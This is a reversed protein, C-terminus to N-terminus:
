DYENLWNVYQPVGDYVSRFSKSYGAERLGSLDAQTFSQYHGKLHEPFDIIRIAANEDSIGVSYATIKAVNMFTEAVGTGVNFIGNGRYEFAAWLNVDVVDDVHIFDRKHEGASLGDYSGFLNLKKTESLQRHFQFIPSSMSAKHGEYPGYVNFYRMGVAQMSPDTTISRRVYNDFLLKSYAYVNIPYESKREVSFGNKGLGYVSASSAYVFKVGIKKCAELLSCSNNYNNKMMYRGDWETTSSCAGQHFVVKVSLKSLMELANDYFDTKDVYDFIEVDSLNKVKHGNTLNDVVVVQHGLSVLKRTLNSGIMGFGGTVLIM